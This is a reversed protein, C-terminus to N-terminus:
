NNYEYGGTSQLYVFKSFPLRVIIKTEEIIQSLVMGRCLLSVGGMIRECMADPSDFFKIQTGSRLVLLTVGDPIAGIPQISIFAFQTYFIIGIIVLLLITLSSTNKKNKPTKGVFEEPKQEM